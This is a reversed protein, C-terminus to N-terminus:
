SHLNNSSSYSLLNDIAMMGGIHTAKVYILMSSLDSSNETEGLRVFLRPAVNAASPVINPTLTKGDHYYAPLGDYVIGHWKFSTMTM